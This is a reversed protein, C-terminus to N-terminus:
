PVRGTQTPAAASDHMAPEFVTVPVTAAVEDSERRMTPADVRVIESGVSLDGVAALLHAYTGRMEVDVHTQAFLSSRPTADSTNDEHSVTTSVLAVGHRRTAASLDHLFVAEPNQAFLTAYQRGLQARDARLQPLTHFVTEDSRLTSADDQLRQQLADVQPAYTLFVLGGAFVALLLTAIRILRPVNVDNGRM